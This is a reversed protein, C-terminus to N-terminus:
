KFPSKWILGLHTHTEHQLKLICSDFASLVSFLFYDAIRAPSKLVTVTLILAWVIQSFISSGSLEVRGLVNNVVGLRLLYVHQECTSPVNVLLSAVVNQTM